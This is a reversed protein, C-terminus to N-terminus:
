VITLAAFPQVATRNTLIDTIFLQYCFPYYTRDMFMESIDSDTKIDSIIVAKFECFQEQKM